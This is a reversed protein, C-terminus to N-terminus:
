TDHPLWVIHFSVEAKSDALIHCQMADILMKVCRPDHVVLPNRGVSTLLEKTDLLPLRVLDLIEHVHKRREDKQLLWAMAARFVDFESNVNLQDRSLFTKVEEFPLKLYEEVNQVQTFYCSSFVTAASQLEECGHVEAFMKIGLCNDTDLNRRLFRSCARKVEEFQLVSAAPLIAQVNKESIEITATYAYDVLCRLSQADVGNITIVRQKSEAMDGTFMARFYSSLSALVVRHCHIKEGEVELVVDCLTKTDMLSKMEMFAARFQSESRFRMVGNSDCDTISGELCLNYLRNQLGKYDVPSSQSRIDSSSHASTDSTFMDQDPAEMMQDSKSNQVYVCLSM